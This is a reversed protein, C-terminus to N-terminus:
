SLIVCGQEPGKAIHILQTTLDQTCTPHPRGYSLCSLFLATSVFIQFSPGSTFLPVHLFPYLCREFTNNEQFEYVVAVSYDYKHRSCSEKINAVVVLQHPFTVLGNETIFFHLHSRLATHCLLLLSSLCPMSKLLPSPLCGVSVVGIEQTCCRLLCSIESTCPPTLSTLTASAFLAM